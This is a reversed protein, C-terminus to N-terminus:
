TNDSGVFKETSGPALARQLIALDDYDSTPYAHWIAKWEAGSHQFAALDHSLAVGGREYYVVCITDDCGAFLLMSRPLSADAIVDTSERQGGPDAMKLQEQIPKPLQAVTPVLALTMAHAQVIPPPTVYVAAALVFAIM